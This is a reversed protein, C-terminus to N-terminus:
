NHFINSNKAIQYELVQIREILRAITESMRHFISIVAEEGERCAARIEAESPVYFDNPTM